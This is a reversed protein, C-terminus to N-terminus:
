LGLEKNIAELKATLGERAERFIESLSDDPASMTESYQEQPLIVFGM